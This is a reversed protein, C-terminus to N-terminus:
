YKCHCHKCVLCPWGHEDRSQGCQRLMGQVAGLTDQFEAWGLRKSPGAPPREQYAVRCDLALYLTSGTGARDKDTVIGSALSTMSM